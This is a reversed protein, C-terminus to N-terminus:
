KTGEVINLSYDNRQRNKKLWDNLDGIHIQWPSGTADQYAKIDGRRCLKAIYTQSLGTLEAVRKTGMTTPQVDDKLAPEYINQNLPTTTM